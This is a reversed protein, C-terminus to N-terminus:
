RQWFLKTILRSYASCMTLTVDGKAIPARLGGGNVYGIDAGMVERFADACLDGLNTEQIRVLRNGDKDHTILEAESVAVKREGLVSYEDNIQQLLADVELDTKAYDATKVLETTFNGDRIALKGIHEFKTGTSTLVVENGGEDTLKMNEIVSHSHGDLM